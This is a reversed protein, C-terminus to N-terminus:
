GLAQRVLRFLERYAKPPKDQAQERRANRILQRLQQPDAAPHASLFEAVAADGEELLRQRWREARKHLSRAAASNQDLDELAQEIPAADEARLLKAIRQLQRRRGGHAKIRRCEAVAERLRDSLPLEALREPALDVLQQGLDKLAHAERKRQSRSPGFDEDAQEPADDEFRM